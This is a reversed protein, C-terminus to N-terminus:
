PRTEDQSSEERRLFPDDLWSTGSLGDIIQRASKLADQAAKRATVTDGEADAYVATALHQVVTDNLDRAQRERLAAEALVVDLNAAVRVTRRNLANGLMALTSAVFGVLLLSLHQRTPTGVTLLVFGAQYVITGLWVVPDQYLTVAVSVVVFALLTTTVQNDIAGITAAASLLAGAAFLQRVPEGVRPSFALIGQILAVMLYTSALDFAVTGQGVAVLLPLLLIPLLSLVLQHRLRWGNQSLGTLDGTVASVTGVREPNDM